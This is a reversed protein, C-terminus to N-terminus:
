ADGRQVVEWQAEAAFEVDTMEADEGLQGFAEYLQSYREEKLIVDLGEQVLSNLSVKRRKAVEASARYLDEPLRVTFAKTRVSM